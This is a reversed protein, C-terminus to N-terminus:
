GPCVYRYRKLEAEGVGTKGQEVMVREHEHIEYPCNNCKPGKKTMVKDLTRRGEYKEPLENSSSMKNGRIM